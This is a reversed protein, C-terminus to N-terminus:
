VLLVKYSILLQVSNDCLLASFYEGGPVNYTPNLKKVLQKFERTKWGTVRDIFDM